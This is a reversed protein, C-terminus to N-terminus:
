VVLFIAAITAKRDVLVALAADHDDHALAPAARKGEHELGLGAESGVSSLRISALAM